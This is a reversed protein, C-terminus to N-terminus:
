KPRKAPVVRAPAPGRGEHRFMWALVAVGCLAPVLQSWPRAFSIVNGSAAALITFQSGVFKYIHEYRWLTAHWPRPMAFRAVDYSLALVLAAILTGIVGASKGQALTASWAIPVALVSIVIAALALLGDKLNPGDEKTYIVHWGSLLQYTVLISLVAFSPIFAFAVINAIASACMVLSLWLFWRGRQRHVRTGKRTALLHFGLGLALTGSAIHVAINALEATQM